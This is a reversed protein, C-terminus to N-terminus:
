TGKWVGAGFMDFQVLNYGLDGCYQGIDDFIGDNGRHDGGPGGHISVLTGASQVRAESVYLCISGNQNDIKLQKRVSQTGLMEM